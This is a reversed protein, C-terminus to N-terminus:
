VDERDHHDGGVQSADGLELVGASSRLRLRWRDLSAAVPVVERVVSAPIASDIVDELLIKGQLVRERVESKALVGGESM